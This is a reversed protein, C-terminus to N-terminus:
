LKLMLFQSELFHQQQGVKSEVKPQIRLSLKTKELNSRCSGPLDHKNKLSFDM